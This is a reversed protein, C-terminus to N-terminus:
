SNSTYYKRMKGSVYATIEHGNELAIRFQTGPLAETISGEMIIKEEKKSMDVGISIVEGSGAERAGNRNASRM